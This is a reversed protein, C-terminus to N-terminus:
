LKPGVPGLVGAVPGSDLFLLPSAKLGDSTTLGGTAQVLLLERHFGLARIRKALLDLYADIKPGLFATLVTTVTREYEGILPAVDASIAVPIGPFHQAILDKLRREHRSNAPAWLLCIAISQVGADVLKGVEALAQEEDLPAFVKGDVDIRENIGVIRSRPVIPTAKRLRYEDIYDSPSLGAVRQAVRGVILTDEHGRTTLLATVPGKRELIANTAVTSGHIFFETEDLLEGVAIGLQEAVVGLVDIVGQSPEDPTSPSKTAAMIRGARTVVCDTFTGGIDVAVHYM